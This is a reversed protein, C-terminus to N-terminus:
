NRNKANAFEQITKKNSKNKAKQHEFFKNYREKKEAIEEQTEEKVIAISDFLMKNIESSQGASGARIFDYIKNREALRNLLIISNINLNKILKYDNYYLMFQSIVPLYNLNSLVQEEIQTLSNEGKMFFANIEDDRLVSGINNIIPIVIFFLFNLRDNKIFEKSKKGKIILGIIEDLGSNFLHDFGEKLTLSVKDISQLITYNYIVTILSEEIANPLYYYVKNALGDNTIYVLKTRASGYSRVLGNLLDIVKKNM